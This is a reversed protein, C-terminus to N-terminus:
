SWNRSGLVTKTGFLFLCIVSLFYLVDRSDIVGKSMANYHTAISLQELIFATNNGIGVFKSLADFVVYVSFCLFLALIFAVIQSDTTASAFIGIAVYAAALFCLGLYSGLIGGTDVNGVPDALFYITIFYIITPLLAVLVLAMGAWFKGLIIAADSIPRTFVLEISGTKKEEAFFRMTIASILFMFVWPSISFLPDLNAYGFDLVSYDPFVWMFVGNVLLFVAIVMYAVLSSLFGQIEKKFISFM